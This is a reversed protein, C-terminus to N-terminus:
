AQGDEAECIIRVIPETNSPRVLLWRDPWDFRLGDMDSTATDSFQARLADFIEPLRDRSVSSKAKHIAYRPLESLLDKVSKGTSAMLELVQAMGVFSDRVYGVRPDIPGGNGEGGYVANVDFMKDCVNAEGVASLHCQGGFEQAIDISMRSTACNIVCDGSRQALRNRLTLALTFEEGIYNGDADIIALRDADPDQCFVIDANNSRAAASVSQLNDATPEPPHAFQGNPVDGLLVARANLSELLIRGLVSGAGHNSDLVVSFNRQRIAEVDVTNLVLELHASTTDEIKSQSGLYEWSVWPVTADMADIVQQGLVASIVRGDGSFLKIGNYEPPNHSASIQVGGAVALHRVLVGTTPTAAVDAYLVDRGAASLAAGIAGALMPGSSRGDRSVVIPGDPLQGAFAAVYQMALTPELSKGIIGRLGSVSIIPKEM